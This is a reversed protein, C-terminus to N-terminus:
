KGNNIEINDKNKLKILGRLKEIDQKAYEFIADFFVTAIIVNNCFQLIEDSITIAYTTVIFPIMSFSISLLSCGIGLSLMNVIGNIFKKVDFEEKLKFVNIRISLIINVVYVIVFTLFVWGILTLNNLIEPLMREM